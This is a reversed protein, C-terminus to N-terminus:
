YSLTNQSKVIEKTIIRDGSTVELYYTGVPAESLDFRLNTSASKKNAVESYIQNGDHDLLRVSAKLGKDKSININLMLSNTNKYEYMGVKLNSERYDIKKDEAHVTTTFFAVALILILKKMIKHTQHTFM